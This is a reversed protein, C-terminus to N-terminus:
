STALCDSKKRQLEWLHVTMRSLDLTVHETGRHAVRWGCRIFRAWVDRSVSREPDAFWARGGPKLCWRLFKELPEFFQQEYFIDGGWVYDFCAPRFGPWNWDMCVWAPSSVQNLRANNQAFHLAEPIHDLGVVLTNQRAAVLASLGLGCGLDLCTRGSLNQGILWNALALTAPWIEVWYPIRPDADPDQDDMAQWLSELDAPRELIYTQGAAEVHMQQCSYIQDPSAM